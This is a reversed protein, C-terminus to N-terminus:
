MNQKDLAEELAKDVLADIDARVAADVPNVQYDKIAYGDEGKLYEGNKQRFTHPFDIFTSEGDKKLRIQIGNIRLGNYYVTAFGLLGNKSEQLLNVYARNENKM